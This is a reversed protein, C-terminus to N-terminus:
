SKRFSVDFAVICLRESFSRLKGVVSVDTGEVVADSNAAASALQFVVASVFTILCVEDLIIFPICNLYIVTAILEIPLKAYMVFTYSSTRRYFNM